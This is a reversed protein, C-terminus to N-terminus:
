ALSWNRVVSIRAVPGICSFIPKLEAESLQKPINGVFLKIANPECSAPLPHQGQAFYQRVAEDVEKPTAVVGDPLLQRAQLQPPMGPQMGPQVGPHGFADGHQMM